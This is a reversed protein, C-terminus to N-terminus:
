FFRDEANEEESEYEEFNGMCKCHQLLHLLLTMYDQVQHEKPLEDSYRSIGLLTDCGSCSGYYVYTYIYDDPDPEYADRHLVMIKTGSWESHDLVDINETDFKEVYHSDCEPNIVIDFLLKTLQEYSDYESQNHTRIYEELEGKHKEWSKVFSNIM